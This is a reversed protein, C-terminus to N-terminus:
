MRCEEDSCIWRIEWGLVAIEVSTRIGQACDRVRRWFLHISPPFNRALNNSSPHLPPFPPHLTPHRHLHRPHPDLLPPLLHSPLPHPLNHHQLPPLRSPPPPPQHLPSILPHTRLNRRPPCVDWELPISKTRPLPLPPPPPHQRSHHFVCVITAPYPHGVPSILRCKMRALWAIRVAQFGITELSGVIQGDRFCARDRHSHLATCHGLISWQNRKRSCYHTPANEVWELWYEWGIEGSTM